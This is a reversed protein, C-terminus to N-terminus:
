IDETNEEEFESDTDTDVSFDPKYIDPLNECSMMEGFQCGCTETCPVKNKKCSCRTSKCGAKCNCKTIFLLDPPCLPETSMLPLFQNVSKDFVWGHETPDLILQHPNTANKWINSIYHARLIHNKLADKTPPISEPAAEKLFRHWKADEINCCPTDYLYCLFPVVSEYLKELSKDSDGLVSIPDSLNSPASFNKKISM